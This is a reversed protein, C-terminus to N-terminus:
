KIKVTIFMEDPEVSALEEVEDLYSPIPSTTGLERPDELNLKFTSKSVLTGFKIGTM